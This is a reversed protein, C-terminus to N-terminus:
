ISVSRRIDGMTKDRCDEERTSPVECQPGFQRPGILQTAAAYRNLSGISIFDICWPGRVWSWDQTISRSRTHGPTFPMMPICLNLLQRTTTKSQHSFVMLGHSRDRGYVSPEMM